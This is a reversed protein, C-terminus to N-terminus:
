SYLLPFLINVRVCACMWRLALPKFYVQGPLCLLCLSCLCSWVAPLHFTLHDSCSDSEPNLFVVALLWLFPSKILLLFFLQWVCSFPIQFSMLVHV